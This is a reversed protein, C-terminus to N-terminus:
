IAIVTLHPNALKVGLAFPVSRGHLTEAAYGDIYHSIKGSCGVGSVIVVDKSAINLKKLANRVAMLALFDGCGPCWQIKNLAKRMTSLHPFLMLLTKVGGRISIITPRKESKAQRMTVIWDSRVRYIVISSM